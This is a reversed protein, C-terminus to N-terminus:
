EFDEHKFVYQRQCFQCESVIKGEQYLDEREKPDLKALFRKMKDKHCPCSFVPTAPEYVTLDNAHFLRYLLKEPALNEYFLETDKVSHMLVTVTEYIDEVEDKDDGARLPMQQVMLCRTQNGKQRIIIDTKIQESLKFYDLVTDLLTKGTLLVIGQYPQQGIQTVSFLLEGNGFLTENNMDEVSPLKEAEFNAYARVQKDNTVNVYLSSIPGSSRVQLSFVGTYKISQALAIALVIAESLVKQVVEPYSHCDLIEQITKDAGIYVGKFRLNELVFPMVIDM